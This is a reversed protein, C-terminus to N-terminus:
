QRNLLRDGRMVAPFVVATLLMLVGCGGYVMPIGAKDAIIGGALSGIIRAIGFSTTQLLSQASAQQESSVIQSIYLMPFFEFCALHSVSLMQSLIILAPTRVVSLLIFRLSGMLLGVTMWRWIPLKKMLRDGFLLFPIELSVSLTSILGVVTNSIGLDGLYKTFFSLNFQHGIGSLLILILILRMERNRLLTALSVKAQQYQHGRVKPMLMAAGAALLLVAGMAPYLGQLSHALVFGTALIGVQYGITGTMRIPGFSLNRAATYEMAIANSVPMAPLYFMSYLTLVSLLPIFRTSAPLVLFCLSGTLFLAVALVTRKYRARDALVGWVPQMFMGMFATVSSILGISSDSLGIEGYFKPAFTTMGTAIFNVAFFLYLSWLKKKDTTM